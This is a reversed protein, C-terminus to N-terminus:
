QLRPDLAPHGPSQPWGPLHLDKFVSGFPYPLSDLPPLGGPGAPSNGPKTIYAIGGRVASMAKRDMTEAAHLDTIKLTKM